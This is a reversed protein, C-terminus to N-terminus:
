FSEGFRFDEILRRLMACFIVLGSRENKVLKERIWVFIEKFTEDTMYFGIAIAAILEVVISKVLENRLVVLIWPFCHVRNSEIHIRRTRISKETFIERINTMFKVILESFFERFFEEETNRIRFFDSAISAELLYLIKDLTEWQIRLFFCCCFAKSIDSLQIKFCSFM